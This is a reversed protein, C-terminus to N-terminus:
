SAKLRCRELRNKYFLNPNVKETVSMQDIIFDINKDQEMDKVNWRKIILKGQFTFTEQITVRKTLKTREYIEIKRLLKSDRDIYYHRQTNKYELILKYLTKNGEKIEEVTTFTGRKKSLENYSIGIGFVEKNEDTNPIMRVRNLAPFYAYRKIKDNNNKILVATCRIDKPTIFRILLDYEYLSASQKALFFSREETYQKMSIKSHIIFSINPLSFLKISKEFIEEADLLSKAFLLQASLVLVLVFKQFIM